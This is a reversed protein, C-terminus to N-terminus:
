KHDYLEKWKEINKEVHERFGKFAPLDNCRCIEDWSKDLLWGTGPNKLKNELGVGGTLFFMYETYDLENKALLLSACLVFSFM